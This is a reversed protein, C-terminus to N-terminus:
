SQKGTSPALLLQDLQANHLVVHPAPVCNPVLRHLNGMEVERPCVTGRIDHCKHNNGSSPTHLLQDLQDNHLVVHPASVCNLVLCHPNGM